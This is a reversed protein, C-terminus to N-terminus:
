TDWILNHADHLSLHNSIRKNHDVGKRKGHLTRLRSHICLILRVLVHNLIDLSAFPDTVEEEGAKGDEHRVM